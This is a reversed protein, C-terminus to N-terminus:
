SKLRIGKYLNNSSKKKEFKESLKEGLKKNSLPEIKNFYCWNRYTETIQSAKVSASPELICCDNIFEQLHDEDQRYEQTAALVKPPPQLGNEQWAQLGQILWALIGSAEQKLSSALRPDRQRQHPAEPRDVFSLTFPILFVREWIAEDDPDIHPRSNTLLFLTHTPAFNVMRKGFVDRGVLRDGGVLWKVKAIDLKRGEGTESAWVMRKGRLAMIDPSPSASSRSYTQKLLMEAPVPLSLPGLIHNLVEQLVGKGNRGAGWFVPFIHEVVQGSLSYGFLRQLFDVLEKDGDTIQLLFEQWRPAPALLGKWETPCITKLYDDRRGERFTGGMIDLVGNPCALLHPQQDWEQGTIGLSNEGACAFELVHRRWEKKQLHSIKKLLIKRKEEIEEAHSKNGKKLYGIAQSALLHCQKEYVEILRDLEVLISNNGDEVWFHNDWRYWIRSTHDFIYNDRILEVFLRADGREGDTACQLVFSDSLTEYEQREQHIKKRVKERIIMRDQM